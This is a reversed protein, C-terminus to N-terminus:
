IDNNKTNKNIKDNKSTTRTMQHFIQLAKMATTLIIAMLLLGLIRRAKLFRRM